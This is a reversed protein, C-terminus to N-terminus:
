EEKVSAYQHIRAIDYLFLGGELSEQCIRQYNKPLTNFPKQISKHHNYYERQNDLFTIGHSHIIEAINNELYIIRKLDKTKQHFQLILSM